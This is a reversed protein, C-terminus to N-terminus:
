KRKAGQLKEIELVVDKEGYIGLGLKERQFNFVNISNILEKSSLYNILDYLLMPEDLDFCDLIPSICSVKSPIAKSYTLYVSEINKVIAHPALEVLVFEIDKKKLLLFIDNTFIANDKGTAKLSYFKSNESIGIHPPTKDSNIIWLLSKDFDIEQNEVTFKEFLYSFM